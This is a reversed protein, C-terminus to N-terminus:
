TPTGTTGPATTVPHTHTALVKGNSTISGTTTINSTGMNAAGGGTSTMGAGFSFLGSVTLAGNVMFALTNAIISTACALTLTPTTITASTTANVEATAANIKADATANVVANTSNVTVTAANVNILGPGLAIKVSGDYSQIVMNNIDANNFTYQTFADPIFRGDEFSHIRFTNPKASEMSKKLAQVFLSIDRDSAEIWGLDGAVLPFTCCFGGGGLALVPVNLYQGHDHNNGDTTVINILPQVVAKNTTRNYSIVKCPLQGDTSEMSKRFALQLLGGLTGNKAPNRSPITQNTM